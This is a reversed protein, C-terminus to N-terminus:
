DHEFESLYNNVYILKYHELVICNNKINECKVYKTELSKGSYVKIHATHSFTLEYFDSFGTGNVLGNIVAIWYIGDFYFFICIVHYNNILQAYHM